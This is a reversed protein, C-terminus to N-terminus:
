LLCAPHVGYCLSESKELALIDLGLVPASCLLDVVRLMVLREVWRDTMANLGLTLTYGVRAKCSEPFEARGVGPRVTAATAQAVDRLAAQVRAKGSVPCWAEAVLVQWAFCAGM